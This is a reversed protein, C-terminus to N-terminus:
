GASANGVIEAIEDVTHRTLDKPIEAVLRTRVVTDLSARLEALSKPPAVVILNDYDGARALRGLMEAVFAAFRDEEIQHWDTQDVASRSGGARAFTRGPQDSGQKGTAPNEKEGGGEYALIPRDPNGTNRLLIYKRGDAVLVLANHRIIM